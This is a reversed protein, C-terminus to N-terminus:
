RTAPARRTRKKACSEVLARFLAAGLVDLTTREPHWQVGLYFRREPDEIAEIIGDHAEAVVELKGADRVAQHHRSTVKGELALSNDGISRIEHVAGDAHDAASVTDDPMHQNLTGGALLAMMQMGLCIGLVPKDPHEDALIELLGEEYRQRDPHVRNAKPHTPVGYDETAPDDGGSLIFADCLDAHRRATEVVPDGPGPVPCLLIPIGGAASVAAIYARSLSVRQSDMDCSIGVLPPRRPRASSSSRSPRPSPAARSASSAGNGRGKGTSSNRTSGM